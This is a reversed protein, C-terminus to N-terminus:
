QKFEFNSFSYETYNKGRGNMRLTRFEGKTTDLTILFSSFLMRKKKAEGISPDMKITIIHGKQTLTVGPIKDLMSSDANIIAKLVAQFAVFQNNKKSSTKHERGRMVMTFDDGSMNLQEKGDAVSINMKDPAVITMTGTFKEGNAVAAKYDLRTAVATVSSKGKFKRVAKQFDVAQAYMGLCLVSLLLM